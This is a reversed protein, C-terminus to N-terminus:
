KQLVLSQYHWGSTDGTAVRRFYILTFHKKVINLLAEDTHLSFFRPPKDGDEGRWVHETDEGGHVGLYFLGDPKLVHKVSALVAEFESKPVHLLANMSYIADYTNAPLELELVNGVEADVGKERCCKVMEPSLDLAKVTLGNEQFFLADRGTGAGLELLLEAGVLRLEELFRARETASWDRMSLADRREVDQNYFSRM